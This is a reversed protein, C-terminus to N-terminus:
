LVSVLSGFKKQVPHDGGIGTVQAEMAAYIAGFENGFIQEHEAETMGINAANVTETGSGNYVPEGNIWGISQYADSDGPKAGEKIAYFLIIGVGAYSYFLNSGAIRATCWTTDPKMTTKNYGAIVISDERTEPMWLNWSGFKGIFQKPKYNDPIKIGGKERQSIGIIEEMQDVTLEKVKNPAVGVESDVDTKFELNSTYKQHIGALKEQYSKLTTICDSIPHTEKLSASEGFRSIVWSIFQENLADFDQSLEPFKTKLAEVASPGSVQQVKDVPNEKMFSIVADLTKLKREGVADTKLWEDYKDTGAYQGYWKDAISVAKGRQESSFNEQFQIRLGENQKTIATKILKLFSAIKLIRM